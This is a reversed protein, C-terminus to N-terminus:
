ISMGLEKMKNLEAIEYQVKPQTKIELPKDLMTVKWNPNKPTKPLGNEDLVQALLGNSAAPKYPKEKEKGPKAFVDFEAPANKSKDLSGTIHWPRGDDRLPSGNIRVILAEIGNGDDAIGVVEVKQAPEPAYAKLGGMCVTIHDYKVDPYKPPFKEMLMDKSAEDLEYCVTSM